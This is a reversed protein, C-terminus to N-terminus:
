TGGNWKRRRASNGRLCYAQRLTTLRVEKEIELNGVGDGSTGFVHGAFQAARADDQQARWLARTRAGHPRAPLAAPGRGGVCGRAARALVRAPLAAADRRRARRSLRLTLDAAIRARQVPPQRLFPMAAPHFRQVHGVARWDACQGNCVWQGDM